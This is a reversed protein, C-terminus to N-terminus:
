AERRRPGDARGEIWTDGSCLDGIQHRQRLYQEALTLRAVRSRNRLSRDTPTSSLTVRLLELGITLQAAIIRRTREDISDLIQDLKLDSLYVLSRLPHKDDRQAM